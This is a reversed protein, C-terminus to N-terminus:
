KDITISELVGAFEDECVDAGAQSGSMGILFMLRGRPVVWMRSLVSFRQGSANSLTYTARMHAAPWGGVQVAHIPSVIRFDAFARRLTAVAGALLDTPAGALGSRVTVQVSPNLGAYPEAYKTFALLPLASRTRFAQHLEPDSLRVRDRNAQGALWPSRLV